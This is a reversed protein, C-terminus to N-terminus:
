PTLRKLTERTLGLIASWNNQAVLKTPTLWSGSVTEVNSLALYDVFNDLGMGGSPCFSINALPGNLAKLFRIGGLNNVPFIKQYHYGADVLAMMESPTSAAPLYPIEQRSAETILASTSGPSVLFQAGAAVAHKFESINRVSGAGVLTEPLAKRVSEIAALGYESRLTIEIINVGGEGLVRALPVAQRAASITVVPIVPYKKAISQFSM